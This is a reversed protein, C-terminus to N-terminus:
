VRRALPKGFLGYPKFLMLVVVIVLIIPLIMPGAHFYTELISEILGVIFGGLVTGVPSFVGGLVSSVFAYFLLSDMMNADLFVIPAILIGTVAGIVAALGWAMSQVRSLSIGVYTSSEPNQAIARMALGMKTFRFFLTVAILLLSTFILITTRDTITTFASPFSKLNYGFLIGCLGKLGLYLGILVMLINFPSKYAFPRFVFREIAMGIFFSIALTAVFAWWYPIGFQILQWCILTTFTAIQGQSFNPQGITITLIVIALALGAYIAGNSLGAFIVELLTDVDYEL